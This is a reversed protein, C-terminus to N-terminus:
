SVPGCRALRVWGRRRRRDGADHGLHPGAPTHLTLCAMAHNSRRRSRRATSSTRRHSPSSEIAKVGEKIAIVDGLTVGTHVARQEVRGDRIVFVTPGSDTERVATKPVVPQPAIGTPLQVTAFMGPLLVGEHNDVIAEDILDRTTARIERGVYKITAQFTRGPQEIVTFDVAVGAHAYAIAPAPVTLALRLPDDVLLTVVKTNAQVYEGMTVQREGIVGAFPARIATDSLVRAAEASRARAAEESAAQTRCQSAQRDYEQQTIAGKALLADYRACDARVAALQEGISTANAQAERETLAAARSDLQAVLAGAKVRDGREVFTRVVRGAANAALDARREAELTGTITLTTPASMEEVTVADVQIAKQAASVVIAQSRAEKGCGATAIVAAVLAACGPNM